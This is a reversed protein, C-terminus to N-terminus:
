IHNAIWAPTAQTTSSADPNLECYIGVIQELGAFFADVVDPDFQSGRGQLITDLAQDLPFASKYPRESTLADFVDALATIRGELPIETGRLGRPYGRGDWREHHTHAVIAALQMVPSTASAAIAHGFGAHSVDESATYHQRVCINRGYECHRQMLSFEMTDLKGPKLLISDPIAVKGIDHLAAADRLHATFAVGLGLHQAIVEAYSGVRLIHHGTENDRYEGAVALCQVIEHHAQVLEKTRVAVEQELTAAHRQLNDYHAKVILANRVRVQLETPDVPKPLFETAGLRLAEVRTETEHSATVMIIPLHAFAKERRLHGLIELGDVHPMILDLLLVDPRERRVMELAERSDTTARFEQYGAQRLYKTVIKINIPQDDVIAIIPSACADHSAPFSGGSPAVAQAAGLATGEATAGVVASNALVEDVCSM